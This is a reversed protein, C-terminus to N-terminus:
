LRTLIACVHWTTKQSKTFYKKTTMGGKSLTLTPWVLQKGSLHEAWPEGQRKVSYMHKWFPGLDSVLHQTEKKYKISVYLITPNTTAQELSSLNPLACFTVHRFIPCLERLTRLADCRRERSVMRGGACGAWEGGWVGVTVRVPVLTARRRRYGVFSINLGLPPGITSTRNALAVGCRRRRIGTRRRWM